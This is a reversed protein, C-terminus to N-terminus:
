INLSFSNLGAVQKCFHQFPQLLLFLNIVVPVSDELVLLPFSFIINELIWLWQTMSAACIPVEATKYYAPFGPECQLQLPGPDWLGWGHDRGSGSYSSWSHLTCVCQWQLGQFRLLFGSAGPSEKVLLFNFFIAEGRTLQDGM